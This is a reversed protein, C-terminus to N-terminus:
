AKVERGLWSILFEKQAKRMELAFDDKILQLERNLIDRDLLIAEQSVVEDLPPPDPNFVKKLRTLLKM